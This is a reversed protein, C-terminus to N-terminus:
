SRYEVVLKGGGPMAEIGNKILNILCQHFKQREGVVYIDDKKRIEICVANMGAFPNIIKIVNQIFIFAAFSSLTKINMIEQFSLSLAVVKYLPVFFAVIM